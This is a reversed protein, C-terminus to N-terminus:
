GRRGTPWRATTTGCRRRGDRWRRSGSRRKSTSRRHGVGPAAPVAFFGEADMAPPNSVVADKWPEPDTIVEQMLFNPLVADLHLSAMTNVWSWPNHPAVSVFHM